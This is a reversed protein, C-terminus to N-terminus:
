PTDVPVGLPVGDVTVQLEFTADSRRDYYPIVYVGHEIRPQGHRALAPSSASEETHRTIYDLFVRRIQTPLGEFAIPGDPPIVPRVEILDGAQAVFRSSV